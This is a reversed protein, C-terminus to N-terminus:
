AALGYVWAPLCAYGPREGSPWDAFDGNATVFAADNYDVCYKQFFLGDGVLILAGVVFFVIAPALFLKAIFRSTGSGPQRITQLEANVRNPAPFSGFRRFASSWVNLIRSAHARFELRHDSGSM